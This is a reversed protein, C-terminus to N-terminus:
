TWCVRRRALLPRRSSVTAWRIPRRLASTTHPPVPSLSSSPVKRPAGDRAMASRCSMPTTTVRPIGTPNIQVPVLEGVSRGNGLNLKCDLLQATTFGQGAQRLDRQMLSLAIAGTTAADDGGTTNRRQGESVKFVQMVVIVAAMAVVIGVMLEVLSFGSPRRPRHLVPRQMM